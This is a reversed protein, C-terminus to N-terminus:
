PRKAQAGSSKSLENVLATFDREGRLPDLDPDMQLGVLDRYGHQIAQRLADIAATTYRKQTQRAEASLDRVSTDPAVAPISLAYTCAIQFLAEEDNPAQKRVTEAIQVARQHQGCRALNVMLAKQVSMVKADKQARAELLKLAESFYQKSAPTDGLRLETVVLGYYARSLDDQHLVGQPDKEVLEKYLPVAKLYQEKADKLNRLLVNIQGLMEHTFGMDRMLQWNQPRAALLQQRMQLCKEFDARAAPVDGLHFHNNAVLVYVLALDYQARLNSPELDLIEKRVKLANEYYGLQEQPASTVQGLKEYSDALSAKIEAPKLEGSPHAALDKRIELGQLYYKRAETEGHLKATLDGLKVVGLARNARAKDGRPDDAASKELVEQLIQYEQFARQVEGMSEYIQGLQLHAQAVNRDKIASTTDAKAAVKDLGELATHLLEQRLGRLATDQLQEQVKTTLSQLADMALGRQESAVIQAQKAEEAKQDAIRRALKELDANENARDREKATEQQENHLRISFLTLGTVAIILLAFVACTLAAVRPNRKCWRVFREPVSVPRAVIPEGAIFRRLDEALAGTSAYRKAPEKQLCKLCITDLDSTVRPQLRSPPM